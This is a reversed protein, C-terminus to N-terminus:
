YWSYNEGNVPVFTDYFILFFSWMKGSFLTVFLVNLRTLVKSTKKFVLTSNSNSQILDLYLFLVKFIATMLYKWFSVKSLTATTKRIWNNERVTIELCFNFIFVHFGTASEHWDVDTRSLVLPGWKERTHSMSNLMTEVHKPSTLKKKKKKSLKLRIINASTWRDVYSFPLRNKHTKLM